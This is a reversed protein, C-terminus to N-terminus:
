LVGALSRIAMKTNEKLYPTNEIASLVMAISANRQLGLTQLYEEGLVEKLKKDIMDFYKSERYLTIEPTMGTQKDLGSTIEDINIVRKQLDIYERSETNVQRLPITDPNPFTDTLYMYRFPFDTGTKKSNFIPTLEIDNGQLDKRKLKRLIVCEGEKLGELEDPRLLPKESPTEMYTKKLSLKEGTRQVDIYTETGLRKSIKELTEDDGSKIYVHNACNELITQADDKYNKFIQEYSQVYFDFGIDKGNGVTVIEDMAEIPPLIGAEDIIFRVPRKCKQNPANVAKKSLIFYLQRIMVSVIFHSSKDYDPVGLFLAIPQEGFGINELDISSEATMKAINEDIFVGLYSLMNTYISGKTREYSSEISAYKLKALDTIPRKNFYEDLKSVNPNNADKIRVLETFLIFINFINIQQEHPTVYEFPYESPIEKVSRDEIIDIGKEKKEKAFIRATERKEEDLDLFANKKLEFADMRMENLAEDLALLDSTIGIILATFLDTATNAWIPEGNGDKNIHFISYAFTRALSYADSKNGQKFNKIVLTLPNYGMSHLPDDLNLLHVEYGRDILTQKSAKFNEMKPDCVVLSHKDEARSYVDISPFIYMEGKGSRTIGIILTNNINTDLYIKGNFHAVITGPSGPYAKDKEPIEKYQEKIEEITTWRANGKQGVNFYEESYSIKFKYYLYIDLAVAIVFFFIFFATKNTGGYWLCYKLGLYKTTDEGAGMANFIKDLNVIFNALYVLLAYLGIDTFCLVVKVSQKRALLRNLNMTKKKDPVINKVTTKKM